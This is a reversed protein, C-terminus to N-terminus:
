EGGDSAPPSDGSTELPADGQPLQIEQGDSLGDVVAIGDQVGLVTVEVSEGSGALRVTTRGDAGTLIAAQPVAPGSRAPVLLVDTMLNLSEAGSLSACQEGCVPGGDPAALVLDTGTDGPGSEAIIAPWSDEGSHVTLTADSPILQAQATSVSMVFRPEGAPVTVATEGGAVQLGVGVVTSDLRVPSPLHPIAVLEGHPLSGTAPRGSERQWARVARETAADFNGDAEHGLHGLERLADQIQAVDDGRSGPELDRYFPVEGPVARVPVLDVAYLLDGIDVPGPEGVATVTGTLSNVAIPAFSQTVTTVLTFSRGVEQTSVTVVPAGTEEVADIPSPGVTVRGAWFAAALLVLCLLVLLLLRAPSRSGSTM